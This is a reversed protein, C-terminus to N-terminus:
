VHSIQISIHLIWWLIYWFHWVRFLKINIHLYYCHILHVSFRLKDEAHLVNWDWSAIDTHLYFLLYFDSCRCFFSFFVCFIINMEFHFCNWTCCFYCCCRGFIDYKIKEGIFETKRLIWDDNVAALNRTVENLHM